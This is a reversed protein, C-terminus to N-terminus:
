AYKLLKPNVDPAFFERMKRLPQQVEGFYFTFREPVSGNKPPKVMFGSSIAVTKQDDALYEALCRIVDDVDEAKLSKVNRALLFWHLFTRWTAHSLRPPIGLGAEVGVERLVKLMRDTTRGVWIRLDLSTKQIEEPTLPHKDLYRALEIEVPAKGSPFSRDPDLQSTPKVYNAFPWDILHNTEAAFEYFLALSDRDLKNKM